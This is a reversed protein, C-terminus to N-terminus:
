DQGRKVGASDGKDALVAALHMFSGLYNRGFNASVDDIRVDRDAYGRYSYKKLSTGACYPSIRPPRPRLFL